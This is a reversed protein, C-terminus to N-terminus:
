ATTERAPEPVLGARKANEAVAPEIAKAAAIDAKAGAKDGKRLKALGRGYISWAQKPQAKIAADYQGIAEDLRGMRLLVWGRSDMFGSNRGGRKLALDCDALALDLQRGWRARTWCRENLITPVSPDNPRAALWTDYDKLAAEFAGNAAYIGGIRLIMRADGAALKRAAELDEQARAADKAGMYLAGRTVLTEVDDPKRKLAEALDAMALVPERASLRAQARERYYRAEAPELEIAKGFSAIAAQFDRRAMSASGRLSFEAATKAEDAVPTAGAPPTAPAGADAQRTQGDLKFVPGGNYTFYVKGQARSVLIRHSLFFDMGLLMDSDPLVIDAVRLRTNRIEEDGIAFSGFPALFTELGRGYLGYTLGGATVSESIPRVGVRRAAPTSLMSLSAGSDWSVNISRGDIKATTMVKRVVPGEEGLLPLRSLTKGASWYALNSDGCDKAIFFRVYGNAFDYEVDMSGLVNQGLLGVTEGGGARPGILFEVNKYPAGAFTFEKARAVEAFAQGGGIGQIRLGPPGMTPKMGFSAAAEESMMSFFAGSDLIFIADKGNVKTTVTPRLGRMTVPMEAVKGFTCAAQAGGGVALGAVMAVGCVSARLSM